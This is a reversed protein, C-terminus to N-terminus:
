EEEDGEADPLALTARISDEVFRTIAEEQALALVQQELVEVERALSSQREAPAQRLQQRADSLRDKLVEHLSKWTDASPAGDLFEEVVLELSRPSDPLYM